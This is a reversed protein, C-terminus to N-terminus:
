VQFLEFLDRYQTPTDPNFHLHSRLLWLCLVHSLPKLDSHNSPYLFAIEM